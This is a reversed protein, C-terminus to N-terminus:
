KEDEYVIGGLARLQADSKAYLEDMFKRSEEFSRTEVLRDFGQRFIKERETAVNIIAAEVPAIEQNKGLTAGGRLWEVAMIARDAKNPLYEHLGDPYHPFLLLAPPVELAAALVLWEAVSISERKGNELRSLAGRGVKFGLEETRQEIWQLTRGGRIEQVREGIQRVQEMQWDTM